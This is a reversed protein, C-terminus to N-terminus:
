CNNKSKEYLEQLCKQCVCDKYNENIKVNPLSFCWCQKYNSSCVFTNGCRECVLENM